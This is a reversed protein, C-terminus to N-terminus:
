IGYLQWTITKYSTNTQQCTVRYSQAPIFNVLFTPDDQVGRLPITLYSKETSPNVDEEYVRVVIEDGFTMANFFVDAEYFRLTSQSSFLNQENGDMVISDNDLPTLVM